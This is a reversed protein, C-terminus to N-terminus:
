SSEDTKEAKEAQHKKSWEAHATKAYEKWSETRKNQVFQFFSLVLYGAIVGVLLLRVQASSDAHRAKANDEKLMEGFNTAMEKPWDIFVSVLFGHGVEQWTANSNNFMSENSENGALEKLEEADVETGGVEEEQKEAKLPGKGGSMAYEYADLQAWDEATLNGGQNQQYIEWADTTPVVTCNESTSCLKKEDWYQYFKHGALLAMEECDEQGDVKEEQDSCRHGPGEFITFKAKLIDINKRAAAILDEQRVTLGSSARECVTNAKESIADDTANPDACSDGNRGVAMKYTDVNEDPDGCAFCEFGEGTTKLSCVGGTKLKSSFCARCPVDCEVEPIPAGASVRSSYSTRRKKTAWAPPQEEQHRVGDQILSGAAQRRVLLTHHEVAPAHRALVHSDQSLVAAWLCAFAAKNM